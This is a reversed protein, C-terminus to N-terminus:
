RIESSYRADSRKHQRGPELPVPHRERFRDRMAQRDDRGHRACDRVRYGRAGTQQHRGVIHGRQRMRETPQDASTGFSLAQGRVGAHCRRLERSPLLGRAQKGGRDFPRIVAKRRVAATHSTSRLRKQRRPALVRTGSILLSISDCDRQVRLM